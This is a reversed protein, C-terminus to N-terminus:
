RRRERCLGQAVAVDAVEDEEGAAGELSEGAVAIEEGVVAGGLAEGEGLPDTAVPGDKPGECRAALGVSKPRREREDPAHGETGVGFRPRRSGADGVGDDGLDDISSDGEGFM